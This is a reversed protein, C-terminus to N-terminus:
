NSGYHNQNKRQPGHEESEVPRRPPDVETSCLGCVEDITRKISTLVLRPYRDLTTDNLEREITCALRTLFM